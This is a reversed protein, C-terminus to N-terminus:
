RLDDLPPAAFPSGRWIHATGPESAAGTLTGQAISRQSTPDPSPTGGCALTLLAGALLLWFSRVQIM